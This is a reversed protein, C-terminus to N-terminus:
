AFYDRFDLEYKGQIAKVIDFINWLVGILIVNYLFKVLMFKWGKKFSKAVYFKDIGFWGLFILIVLLVPDAKKKGTDVYYEEKSMITLRKQQVKMIASFSFTHFFFVNGNKRKHPIDFFSPKNPVDCM